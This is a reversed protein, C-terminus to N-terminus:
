NALLTNIAGRTIPGCFGANPHIGHANQFAIVAQKTLNGFFSTENGLSGVGTQAVPFGRTNFFNQLRRVDPDTMGLFLDKNFPIMNSEVMTYCGWIYPMYDEGLYQVGNEGAQDGWSNKIKIFKKGDIMKAGLCVMWHAWNGQTQTPPQPFKSLWSGNNYGYIGIIAGHNNEIASALIDIDIPDVIAYSLAKTFNANTRAEPTIDDVKEMFAEDCIGNILSPTLIEDAVGQKIFLNSNTVGSSGGGNVHTQAYIYKASKNPLVGTRSAELAECLYAWAQGGCSYSSFQNKVPIVGIKDEIDVGKSWDFQPVGGIIDEYKYTRPDKPEIIAGTFTGFETIM